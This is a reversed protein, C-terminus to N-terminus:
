SRYLVNKEISKIKFLQAGLIGNNHDDAGWSDWSPSSCHELFGMIAIFLAGSDRSPLSSNELFGSMAIVLAAPFGSIFNVTTCVGYIALLETVM